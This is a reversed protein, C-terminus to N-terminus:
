YSLIIKKDRYTAKLHNTSCIIEIIEEITYNDFTTKGIIIEGTKPNEFIINVKYVTNIDTVINKLSENEYTFFHTKWSIYNPNNNEIKTLNGSSLIGKEGPKLTIKETKDDKKKVEVIGTKVVIETKNNGTTVNFSTGLIKIQTKDTNIIFPNQPNKTIEFFAEGKFKINRINGAIKKPYSLESNTNLTIHSGDPLTLEKITNDSYIKIESNSTLIYYGSVSLGIILLVSAALNRIKYLKKRKKTTIKQQINKWAVVNDFLQTNRNMDKEEKSFNFHQIERSVSNRTDNELTGNLFKQLINNENHAM